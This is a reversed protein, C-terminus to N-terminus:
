ELRFRVAWRMRVPVPRGGRLAPSFRYGLLARAAAEDLGYGAHALPRASVVRGDATVVIEVPVEAEVAAARAAPPYPPPTASVLHASVDVEREGLPGDGPGAAGASPAGTSRAPEGDDHLTPGSAVVGASMAFRAPAEDNLTAHEPARASVAPVARSATHRPRPAHSPAGAREAGAAERAPASPGSATATLEVEVEPAAAAEGRSPAPVGFVGGITAAAAAHVLASAV